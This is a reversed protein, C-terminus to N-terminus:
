MPIDRFNEQFHRVCAWYADRSTGRCLLVPPGSKPYFAADFTPEDTQRTSDDMVRRYHGQDVNTTRSLVLLWEARRKKSEAVTRPVRPDDGDVLEKTARDLWKERTWRLKRPGYGKAYRM